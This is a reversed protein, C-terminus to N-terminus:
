IEVLHSHHKLILVIENWMDQQKFSSVNNPTPILHQDRKFYSEICTNDINFEALDLTKIHREYNVLKVRSGYVDFVNRWMVLMYIFNQLTGMIDHSGWDIVDFNIIKTKNTHVFGGGEQKLVMQRYGANVYSLFQAVIDSRYLLWVNIDDSEVCYDLFDKSYSLAPTVHIKATWGDGVSAMHKLLERRKKHEQLFKVYLGTDSKRMANYTMRPLEPQGPHVTWPEGLSITNSHLALIDNLLMSGSRPTFLILNCAM